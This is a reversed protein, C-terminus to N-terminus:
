GYYEWVLLERNKGEDVDVLKWGSERYFHNAPLDIPCKAVIKDHPSESWVKEVLKKGIGKGRHDEYVAIDYITTQPKRVCHNCIVAGVIEGESSVSYTTKEKVQASNIFGLEDRHSQFLETMKKVTM